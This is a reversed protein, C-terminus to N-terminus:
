VLAKKFQICHCFRRSRLRRRRCRRRCRRCRRRRRRRRRRRIHRLGQLRFCILLFAFLCSKYNVLLM